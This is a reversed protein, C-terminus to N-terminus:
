IEQSKIIENYIAKSIGIGGSKSISKAIEENMMSRYINESPGGGFEGTEVTNYMSQLIEFLFVAEFSEAASKIDKNKLVNNDIPYNKNFSIAQSLNEM